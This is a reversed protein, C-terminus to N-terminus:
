ILIVAIWLRRLYAYTQFQSCFSLAGPAREVRAVPPRSLTTPPEKRLGYPFMIAFVGHKGAARSSRLARAIGM